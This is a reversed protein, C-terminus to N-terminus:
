PLLVQEDPIILRHREDIPDIGFISPALRLEAVVEDAEQHFTLAAGQPPLLVRLLELGTGLGRGAAFDFADPLLAPGNRIVVRQEATGAELMVRVPRTPGSSNNHKLANILLENLALAVSVADEQALFATAGSEPAPLFRIPISGAAGCVLIEILENLRVGGEAHHSQLGYVHAIAHIQVIVEELDEALEPHRTIRNRLLGTVGQLHNKIRHHVERVLTDRQRELRAFREVESQKQETIDHAIGVLGVIRGADDRLPSRISLYIRAGGLTAIREEARVVQGLEIVRQDSELMARGVAPDNFFEPAIKGVLAEQTWPPQRGLLNLLTLSAPNVYIVRCARDVMFIPDPSNEMITRLLIERARLKQEAREQATVDVAIGGVFRHGSANQFPIKITHWYSLAGDAEPIEYTIEQSKDTALAVLDSQRFKEAMDAPWVEFDTKGQWTEVSACCRQQYIRSLYAYCGKEDKIWAVIPGHDMFLRFREESERLATEIRKRETIDVAVLRCSRDMGSGVGVGEFRVHRRPAGDLDLTVECTEQCAEQILRNLFAAFVARNEEAVWLGLRKGILHSREQGFLTAGAFNLERIAGDSTVTFYGVPAFDYLDTYRKLNQELRARTEQLEENQLELEIQHVHLEHILRLSDAEALSRDSQPQQTKLRAEACRRLETSATLAGGGFDARKNGVEKTAQIRELKAEAARLRAVLDSRSLQSYDTM